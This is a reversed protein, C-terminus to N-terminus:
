ASHHDTVTINLNMTLFLLDLNLSLPPLSSCASAVLLHPRLHELLLCTLMASSLKISYTSPSLTFLISLENSPKTLISISLILRHATRHTRSWRLPSFITIPTITPPTFFLPPASPSTLCSDEPIRRSCVFDRLLVLIFLKPGRPASFSIM